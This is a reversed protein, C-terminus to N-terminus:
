DVVEIANWNLQLQEYGRHKSGIWAVAKTNTGIAISEAVINLCASAAAEIMTYDSVIRSAAGGIGVTVRVRLVMAHQSSARKVQVTTNSMPDYFEGCESSLGLKVKKTTPKHM